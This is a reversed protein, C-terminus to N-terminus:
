RGGEALLEQDSLRSVSVLVEAVQEVHEREAPDSLLREAFAAVTPSEFLAQLPVDVQFLDRVQAIVQTALLSHGGIAFFSDHVGIRDVKLVDSWLAVLSEELTTRPGAGEHASLFDPAPLAQVDVKGSSGQPLRELEVFATPVMYEPLRRRLHERLEGASALGEAGGAAYAVLRREGGADEHVTVVAERVSPHESLQSEVEGLEIRLGRIKVQRDIRGLLELEGDRRWRAVDGTRYMRQGPVFPDVVFREATLGPRNLYGQALLEGGVCLEGPVGRPQLEDRGDLVYVRGWPVPSGLPLRDLERLERGRMPGSGATVDSCETPGYGHLLGSRCHESEFWPRVRAVHTAEGGVCVCRLSALREFGGDLVPYLQTPTCCLATARYREILEVLKGPDYRAPALVLCGGNLLTGLIDKLAADFSFSLILLYRTDPGLGMRERYWRLLNVYGRGGLVTGKPAGTSGSTYIVVMQSDVTTV